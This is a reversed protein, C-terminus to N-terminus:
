ADAGLVLGPPLSEGFLSVQDAQKLSQVQELPSLRPGKVGASRLKSMIKQRLSRPVDLSRDDVMRAGRLFVTSMEVLAPESWDLKKFAAFADEVAEPPLVSELGGYLPTRNLLRSITVLYPDVYDGATARAVTKELLLDFLEQKSELTLRELAGLLRVAEASPNKSDRVTPLTEELLQQQREAYLGGAVRRWLVDANIQMAKGPYWFGDDHFEWLQNIRSEDLQVGYGPRLFMGAMSAWTEEHDISEGRAEFCSYLSPWLSRLLVANWDQKPQGLISELSKTLRAPTIRDRKNWPANFISIIRDQAAKQKDESVGPDPPGSPAPKAAAPKSEVQRLSFHLPWRTASESTEVCDVQLLGVANLRASLYVPVDAEDSGQKADIHTQLPPLAHFDNGSGMRILDGERDTDRRNATYAQFEVPQNVRLKLNLNKVTVEEEQPTGKPMVCVLSADGDESAKQAELYLSRAAGAQIRRANQRLLLGYRAAGRAVALDPEPNDLIVPPEGGQWHLVQEQLRKRITEPKLSGGNFLIADVRPREHLFEALHRTIGSDAAYSLGWERLTASAREPVADAECAPYFGQILLELIQGRSIQASLTSAFLGSGRGPIAVNFTDEPAGTGDLAEEKIERCRATLLGWQEPSLDGEAQLEREVVHALALDINDGGLLIHDSVAIRKIDPLERNKALRLEFLSFDSTGGGIDVIVIYHRRERLEPLANLLAGDNEHAELWRYFAAQPEELLRVKDPFGAKAAAELTLRQAVADFSAPVTITIEQEDFSAEEEQAHAEDWTSRLYNLLQASARIPSLKKGTDLVDSGWPLFNASRDMGHSCLWSKASHVVRGPTKAAQNRAFRGVIWDGGGGKAQLQNLEGEPPRYLFSPLAEADTLRSESEWQPITVIRTPADDGAELSACGLACNTTGLDIGISYRATGM